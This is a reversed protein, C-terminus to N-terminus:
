HRVEMWRHYTDMSVGNISTPYRWEKPFPWAQASPLALIDYKAFITDLYDSYDKYIRASQELEKESIRKGAALEFRMEEKICDAMLLDQDPFKESYTAFAMAFRVSNWSKWLRDLPFLESSAVDDVTVGTKDFTHRLSTRCLSLIGGEFPIQKNWDALWGIRVHDDGDDTFISEADFVEKGGVMTELFYACDFPSRAIPGPTSIPFPLSNKISTASTPPDRSKIMGATPRHSYINNYGAPNRLSGMMDTGDALSLMNTSVAVAAGGSSGGASKTSDYPNSTTGWEANFTHSGMGCEPTNTKGIVIAGSNVINEVYLDSFDPISQDAFLPSGGMSTPLGQVNCLDKIAIPIGHLWGKEETSDDDAKRALSLLEQREKMLIIANYTPNIEDIRNLTAEMLDYCSIDKRQISKSLSVADM